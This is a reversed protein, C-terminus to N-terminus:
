PLTALKVYGGYEELTYTKDLVDFQRVYSFTSDMDRAQSLKEMIASVITGILQFDSVM